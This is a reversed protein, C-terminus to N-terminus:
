MRVDLHHGKGSAQELDADAGQEGLDAVPPHEPPGPREEGHGKSEQELDERLALGEEEPSKNVQQRRAAARQGEGLAENHQQVAPQDDRIRTVRAVETSRPISVQLDLSKITM